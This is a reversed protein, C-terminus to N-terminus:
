GDVEACQDVLAELCFGLSQVIANLADDGCGAILIGACKGDKTLAPAFLFDGQLCDMRLFTRGGALRCGSGKFGTTGAEVQLRTNGEAVDRQFTTVEVGNIKRMKEEISYM